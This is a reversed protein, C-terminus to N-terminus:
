RFIENIQKSNELKDKEILNLGRFMAYISIFIAAYWTVISSYGAAATVMAEIAIVSSAYLSLKFMGFLRNVISRKFIFAALALFIVSSFYQFGFLFFHSLLLNLFLEIIHANLYESISQETFRIEKDKPVALYKFLTRYPIIQYKGDKLKYSINTRNLSLLVGTESSPVVDDKGNIFILSDTIMRDDKSKFDSFLKLIENTTIPDILYKSERENILEEGSIVVGSLAIALYKPLGFEKNM